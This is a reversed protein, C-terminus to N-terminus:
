PPLISLLSLPLMNEYKSFTSTDVICYKAVVIIAIISARDQCYDYVRLFGIQSHLHRSIPYLLNHLVIRESHGLQTSKLIQIM